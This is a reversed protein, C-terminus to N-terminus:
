SHVWAGIPLLAVFAPYKASSTNRPMISRTFLLLHPSRQSAQRNRIIPPRRLVRHLRKLTPHPLLCPETAPPAAQRKNCIYISALLYLSSLSMATTVSRLACCVDPGLHLHLSSAFLTSPVFSAPFFCLRSPYSGRSSREQTRGMTCRKGSIFHPSARFCLLICCVCGVFKLSLVAPRVTSANLEDDERVKLTRLTVFRWQAKEGPPTDDANWTRLAITGDSGGTALIGVHSFERELFALSTIV